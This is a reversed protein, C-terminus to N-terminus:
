EVFSGRIKIDQNHPKGVLFIFNSNKQVELSINDGKDIIIGEGSSFNYDGNIVGDILYILGVEQDALKNTFTADEEALVVQYRMETHTKLPADKGAIQRIRFGDKKIIPIDKAEIIQYEPDSKKLEKPLNVWLQIGHSLKNPGPKESHVLSKGANFAQVGGPGVKEKNGQNDEHIFQGELMYTIAEFGRHEHPAFENPPEVFFEDMLVFPDHHGNYNSTPFLRKVRAGEGEPKEVSTIIQKDM